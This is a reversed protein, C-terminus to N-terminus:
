DGSLVTQIEDRTAPLAKAIKDAHDSFRAVPVVVGVAALTGAADRVVAAVACIGMTYEEHDYALGNARVEDLEALLARRGSITNETFAALRQPLLGREEEDTLAALLARGNAAAHLPFRAGIQSVIRLTRRAAYQDIFLAEGADLVTLDVTERLKRSLRELYPGVEHRLDSRSSVALGVLAPGIRLRGSPAQRVFGETVL